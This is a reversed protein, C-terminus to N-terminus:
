HMMEGAQRDRRWEEIPADSNYWPWAFKIAAALETEKIPSGAHGLERLLNLIKVHITKTDLYARYVMAVRSTPLLLVTLPPFDHGTTRKFTSRTHTLLDTLDQETRQNFERGYFRVLKGMLWALAHQVLPNTEPLESV